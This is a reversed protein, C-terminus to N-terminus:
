PSLSLPHRQAEAALLEDMKQVTALRLQKVAASLKADASIYATYLGRVPPWAQAVRDYSVSALPAASASLEQVAALDLQRQEASLSADATVYAQTRQALLPAAQNVGAKFPPSTACGSLLGLAILALSLLILHPKM